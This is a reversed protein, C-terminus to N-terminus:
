DTVSWTRTSVAEKGRNIESVVINERHQGIFELRSMCEWLETFTRLFQESRVMMSRLSDHEYIIELTESVISEFTGPAIDAWEYFYKLMEEKQRSDLMLMSVFCTHALGSIHGVTHIPASWRSTNRMDFYIRAIYQLVDRSIIQINAALTSKGSQNRIKGIILRASKEISVFLTRFVTHYGLLEPHASMCTAPPIYGTDVAYREGDKCLRGITLHHRGFEGTNIEGEPMIYLAYKSECDPHRPPIEEPDLEGTPVRNFPDVALIVDWRQIERNHINTDEPPSYRKVLPSGTAKADFDIRYGSATIAHCRSLQVEIHGTVHENVRIGTDTDAGADPPLLGYSYLTLSQRASEAIASLFYNESQIFLGANLEMGDMWHVLKRNTM